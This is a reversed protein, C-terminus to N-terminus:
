IDRLVNLMWQYIDEFIEERNTESHLEHRCDVYLRLEVDNLYKQYLHYLRKVDKGYGGVPDATGSAIFMPLDAPIKKINKIRSVYRITEFLGLYGNVSFVYGCKRDALYADVIAADRTLWDSKTRPKSIKKNYGGFMLRDLLTSKYHTGKLKGVLKAATMGSFVRLKSQNGTGLIVVGDLKDGYKMLYRRTMFSGMSHGLLIYPLLPYKTKMIRTLRYMDEVVFSGPDKGKKAETFYGWDAEDAVSDGHGLHDNGVVLFGRDAMYRALADFRLIYDIMGHAIQLVAKPQPFKEADPYWIVAHIDCKGSASPYKKHETVIKSEM